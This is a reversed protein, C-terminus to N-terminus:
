TMLESRAAAERGGDSRQHPDRPGRRGSTRQDRPHPDTELAASLSEYTPTPGDGVPVMPAGVGSLLQAFGEDPPACVRVKAGLERLRVAIAAVPEVDGRSGYTSLAVRM